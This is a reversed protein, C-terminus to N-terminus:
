TVEGENSESGRLLCQVYCLCMACFCNATSGADGQSTPAYCAAAHPPAIVLRSCCMTLEGCATVTQAPAETVVDITVDGLAADSPDSRVMGRAEVSSDAAGRAADNTM